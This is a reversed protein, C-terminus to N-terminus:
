AIVQPQQELDGVIGRVIVSGVGGLCPQHEVPFPSRVVLRQRFAGPDPAGAGAGASSAGADVRQRGAYGRSQAGRGVAGIGEPSIGFLWNEAVNAAFPEMFVGKFWIIYGMTFLLGSLMGAIAGQKNVRLSLIGLLIAPFLSAAALGFALAVVEAVFGPPNYGLYGALLM